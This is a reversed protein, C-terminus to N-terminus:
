KQSQLEKLHDRLKAAQIFDLEKAAKEMAKRTALIAKELEDKSLYTVVNEAVMKEEPQYEKLLDRYDGDGDAV